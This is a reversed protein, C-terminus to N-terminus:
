RCCSVISSRSCNREDVFTVQETKMIAQQENEKLAQQIEISHLAPDNQDISCLCCSDYILPEYM